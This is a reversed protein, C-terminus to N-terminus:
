LGTLPFRIGFMLDFVQANFKQTGRLDYEGATATAEAGDSFIHRLGVETVLLLNEGIRYEAGLAGSMYFKNGLDFDSTMTQRGLDAINFAVDFANKTKAAGIGARGYVNWAQTGLAVVRVFGGMLTTTWEATIDDVTPVLPKILKDLVDTADADYRHYGFRGGVFVRPTVEAEIELNFGLGTEAAGGTADYAGAEGPQIIDTKKAFDGIPIGPGMTLRFAFDTASAPVVLLAALLCLSIIATYSKM